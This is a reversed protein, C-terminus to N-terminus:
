LTFQNFYNLLNLLFLTKYMYNIMRKLFNQCITVIKDLIKLTLRCSSFTVFLSRSKKM